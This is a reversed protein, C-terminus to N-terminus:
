GLLQEAVAAGVAAAGAAAAGTGPATAASGASAAVSEAKPFLTFYVSAPNFFLDPKGNESNHQQQQLM